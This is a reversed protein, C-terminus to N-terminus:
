IMDKVKLFFSHSFEENKGAQDVVNQFVQNMSVIPVGLDVAFRQTIEEAFVNPPGFFAIKPDKPWRRIFHKDRNLFGKKLNTRLNNIWM